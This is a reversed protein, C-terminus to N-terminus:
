ETKEEPPDPEQPKRPLDLPTFGVGSYEPQVTEEPAHYVPFELIAKFLDGDTQLSLTGNQLKTLDRAISLGLGSGETHRSSDGRVFREMLEDPSTNLPTASVNKLTIRVFVDNAFVDLYVRTGTLAYKCANGLLNDFVRWIQRGDAMISVPKEPVEMMLSLQKSALQEEYEGAIQEVLVQLNTPQLEVSLNGTSAKSADVLDITLKKLRAAQRKLVDLYEASQATQMPERSLLDVYNVISTLPTKLDHSVNTILETRLHEAKTQRAVMEGVHNTIDGLSTDFSAFDAVLPLSREMPSFDGEEMQKVHRYLEFYAYVCYLLGGLSVIDLFPTILLFLGGQLLMAANLIFLIIIYGILAICTFTRNKFIRAVFNLFRVTGFSSWFTESKIRVATTYLYLVLSAAIALIMGAGFIARIRYPVSPESLLEFMVTLSMLVCVPPIIWFYEYPLKHVASVFIGPKGPVHGATTCMAMCAIVTLIMFGFMTVLIGESYQYLLRFVYYNNRIQDAIPLGAPLYTRICVNIAEGRSATVTVDIGGALKEALAQDAISISEGAALASLCDTFPMVTVNESSNEAIGWYKATTLAKEGLEEELREWVASNYGEEGPQATIRWTVDSGYQTYDFSVASEMSEFSAISFTGNGSRVRIGNHYADDVAPDSFYWLSFDAPDNLVDALSGDYIAELLRGYDTFHIERSYGHEQSAISEVQMNEGLKETSDGPAENTLLLNGDLDTVSFRFNTQNPDFLSHYYFLATEKQADASEKKQWVQNLQIYYRLDNIRDSETLKLFYNNFEQETNAFGLQMNMLVIFVSIGTGWLFLISLVVTLVKMFPNSKWSEQM